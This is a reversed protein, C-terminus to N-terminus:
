PYHRIDGNRDTGKRLERVRKENIDFAITTIVKGFAAALPLGVYGLGVVAVCRPFNTKM